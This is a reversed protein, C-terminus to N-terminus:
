GILEEYADQIELFKKTLEDLEEPSLQNNKDPHFQKILERYRSKIEEKSANLPLELIALAILKRKAPETIFHLENKEGKLHNLEVVRKEIYFANVGILEGLRILATFERDIIKGDVLTLEILFDVLAIRSHKDVLTQTIWNAVSRIHISTEKALFFENQIVENSIRFNEKLADQIYHMKETSFIANKKSIWAALLVYIQFRIRNKDRVAPPTFSKRLVLEASEKRAKSDHRHRRILVCIGLLIIALIIGGVIM